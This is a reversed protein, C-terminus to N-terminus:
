EHLFETVRKVFEEPHSLFPAHAAGAIASLRADPMKEAIYESAALPTLTDRDGAIVLTKKCIKPLGLRLDADNLMELGAQLAAM